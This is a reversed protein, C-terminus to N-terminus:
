CVMKERVLRSEDESECFVSDSEDGKAPLKMAVGGVMVTIFRKPTTPSNQASSNSTSASFSATMSAERTSATRELQVELGPSRLTESSRSIPMDRYEQEVQQQVRNLEPTTHASMSARSHGIRMTASGGAPRDGRKSPRLTGFSSTSGERNLTAPPTSSRLGSERETPSSSDSM